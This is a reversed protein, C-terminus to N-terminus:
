IPITIKVVFKQEIVEAIFSGHYKEVTSLVISLGIGKHGAKSSRYVKNVQEPIVKTPNTVTIVIFDNIRRIAFNVWKLDSPLDACAEFSNNLLNAFIGTIDFDDIFDMSIDDITPTLKIQKEEAEQLKSSIIIALVTNQCSFEHMLEDLKNCLTQVYEQGKEKHYNMFLNEVTLIHNKADHVLKNSKEQNSILDKYHNLQMDVQQHSLM